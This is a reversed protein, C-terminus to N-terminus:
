HLSIRPGSSADPCVHHCFGIGILKSAGDCYDNLLVSRLLLHFRINVEPVPIRKFSPIKSLKLAMAKCPM